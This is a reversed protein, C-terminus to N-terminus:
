AAYNPLTSVYWGDTGLQCREFYLLHRKGTTLSLTAGNAIVSGSPLTITGGTHNVELVCAYAGSPVNSFSLTTNAAITTTFRNGASCDM